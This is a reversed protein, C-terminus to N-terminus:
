SEADPTVEKVETGPVSKDQVFDMKKLWEETGAAEFWNMFNSDFRQRVELPLNDFEARGRIVIDLIDRYTKPMATCDVFSGQVKSLGSTDGAACKALILEISCSEAHSDIEEQLDITEGPVLDFNGDPTQVCVLQTKFQEGAPTFFDDKLRRRMAM